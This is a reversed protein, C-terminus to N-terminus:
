QNADEEVPEETHTMKKKIMVMMEIMLGLLVVSVGALVYLIIRLNRVKEEGTVEPVEPEAPAEPEPVSIEAEPEIYRQYTGEVMDYLYFGAEGNVNMGYVLLFEMNGGKAYATIKQGQIETEVPEYGNPISIDESPELIVYRNAAAQYEIYPLFTQKEENYIFWQGEVEEKMLYVLHLLGNPSTFITIVTKRYKGEGAKFGEPVSVSEMQGAKAFTYETGLISVSPLEEEEEVEGCNVNLVYTKQTGNEATVVIYTKNAGPELDNHHTISVTAKSDNPIASVVISTTEKPLDVTYSTTESQFSPNLTGPSIELSKLSNDGSGSLPTDGPNSNGESPTQPASVTVSTGAHSIELVSEDWGYAEGGSTSISSTGNGIAKFNLTASLRTQSGDGYGAIMVTGGGGSGAGGTYELVGSNYSVPLSYSGIAGETSVSVTVSISDGIKLSSQSVAISVNAGAAYVPINIHSLCFIIVVLMIGWKKQAKKM